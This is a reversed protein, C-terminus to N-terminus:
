CLCFALGSGETKDFLKGGEAYALVNGNKDLVRFPSHAGAQNVFFALAKDISPFALKPPKDSTPEAYDKQYKDGEKFTKRYNALIHTTISEGAVLQVPNSNAPSLDIAISMNQLLYKKLNEYADNYKLNKKRINNEFYTQFEARNIKESLRFNEDKAKALFLNWYQTDDPETM